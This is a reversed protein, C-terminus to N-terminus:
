RTVAPREALYRAIRPLSRVRDQFALLDPWAAFADDRMTRVADIGYDM